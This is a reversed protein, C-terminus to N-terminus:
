LLSIGKQEIHSFFADIAQKGRSQSLPIVDGNSLHFERRSKSLFRVEDLNVAFSKHCQAFRGDLRALIEELSAYTIVTEGTRLSINLKRRDSELFLIDQFAILRDADRNKVLLQSTSREVAHSEASKVAKDLARVFDAETIPKELYYVHNAEYVDFRNRDNATIFIVSILSQLRHIKNVWEIGNDPGLHIDMILIDVQQKQVFSMLKQPTDFSAVQRNTGPLNKELLKTLRELQIPDDECICIMM